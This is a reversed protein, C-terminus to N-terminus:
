LGVFSCNRFAVSLSARSFFIRPNSFAVVSPVTVLIKQSAMLSSVVLTTDGAKRYFISLELRIGLPSSSMHQVEKESGIREVPRYVVGCHLSVEDGHSIAAARLIGAEPHRKGLDTLGFGFSLRVAFDRPCLSVTSQIHDGVEGVQTLIEM